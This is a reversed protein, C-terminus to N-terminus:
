SNGVPLMLLEHQLVSCNFRREAFDRLPKEIPNNLPLMFDHCETHLVAKPNKYFSTSVQQLYDRLFVNSGVQINIRGVEAFKDVADSYLIKTFVLFQQPQVRSKQGM